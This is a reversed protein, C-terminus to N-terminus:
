VPDHVVGVAAAVLPSIVAGEGNLSTRVGATEAWLVFAGGGRGGRAGVRRLPAVLALRAFVTIPDGLLHTGNHLWCCGCVGRVHRKSCAHECRTRVCVGLISVCLGCAWLGGLIAGLIVAVVPEGERGTWDGAAGAAASIRVRPEVLALAPFATVVHGFLGALVAVRFVIVARGCALSARHGTTVAAALVRERPEVLALTALVATPWPSNLVRRQRYCSRGREGDWGDDM